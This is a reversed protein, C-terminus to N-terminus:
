VFLLIGFIKRVGIFGFHAGFIHKTHAVTARRGFVIPFPLHLSSCCDGLLAARVADVQKPLLGTYAMKHETNLRFLMQNIQAIQHYKKEMTVVKEHFNAHIDMATSLNVNARAAM